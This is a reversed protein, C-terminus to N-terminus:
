HKDITVGGTSMESVVFSLNRFCLLRSAKSVIGVCTYIHTYMFCFFTEARFHSDTGIHTTKCQIYHIYENYENYEIYTHTWSCLMIAIIIYRM